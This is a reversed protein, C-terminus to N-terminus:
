MYVPDAFSHSPKNRHFAALHTLQGATIKTISLYQMLVKFTSKVNEAM